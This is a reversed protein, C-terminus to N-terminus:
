KILFMLKFVCCFLSIRILSASRSNFLPPAIGIFPELYNPALLRPNILLSLIKAGFPALRKLSLIDPIIFADIIRDKLKLVLRSTSPSLHIFGHLTLVQSAIGGYLHQAALATINLM